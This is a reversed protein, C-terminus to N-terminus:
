RNSRGSHFKTHHYENVRKITKQSLNKQPVEYLDSGKISKPVYHSLCRTMVTMAWAHVKKANIFDLM